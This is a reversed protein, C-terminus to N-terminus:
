GHAGHRCLLLVCAYHTCVVDHFVTSPADSTCCRMKKQTTFGAPLSMGDVHARVEAVRVIPPGLEQKKCVKISRSVGFEVEKSGDPNDKLIKAPVYGEVPDTIWMWKESTASLLAFEARRKKEEMQKNAREAVNQMRISAVTAKSIITLM